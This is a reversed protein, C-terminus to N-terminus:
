FVYAFGAFPGNFVDQHVIGDVLGRDDLVQTRWGLRLGVPGLGLAVNARADLQIFPLPTLSAAGELAVPGAIWLIGSLGGTPGLAVLDAAFVADVGFVGRLRGSQGVLFAHSAHLSLQRLADVEGPVDKSRLTMHQGAVGFGWRAGELMASLNLAGGGAESGVYLNAEMAGVVRLENPPEPQVSPTPAAVAPASPPAYLGYGYGYWPVFAGSYYGRSFALRHRLPTYGWSGTAAGGGVQGRETGVPVAPHMTPGAGQGSAAGGFHWGRNGGAASPSSSGGGSVGGGVAAASGGGGGGSGRKGFRAEAPASLLAVAMVTALGLARRWGCPTGPRGRPDRHVSTGM